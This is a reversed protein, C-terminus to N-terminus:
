QVAPSVSDLAPDPGWCRRAILFLVIGIVGGILWGLLGRVLSFLLPTHIHCFTNLLSAQGIAGAALFLNLWKGKGAFASALGAVMLPHGFLFEKTRPRVFLIKNLLSRFSMETGSVGVGPDNGSRLVIVGVITLGILGALTQGMLLPSLTFERWREAVRGSREQWTADWSLDGLGLGHYILTLFMPMIIALRIGFFEDIHLMFTRDALLGVVLLIGLATWATAVAYQRLAHEVAWFASKIGSGIRPLALSM